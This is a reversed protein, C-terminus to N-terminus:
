AIRFDGGLEVPLWQVESFLFLTPILFLFILPLSTHDACSVFARSPRHASSVDMGSCQDAPQGSAKNGAERLLSPQSRDGDM